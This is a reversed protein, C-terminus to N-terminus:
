KIKNNEDDDLEGFIDDPEKDEKESIEPIIEGTDKPQEENEDKAEIKEKIKKQDRMVKLYRM